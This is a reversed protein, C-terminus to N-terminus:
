LPLVSSGCCWGDTLFCLFGLSSVCVLAGCCWIDDLIQQLQSMMMLCPWQTLHTPAWLSVPISAPCVGKPCDHLCVDKHFSCADLELM